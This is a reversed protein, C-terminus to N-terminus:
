RELPMTTRGKYNTSLWGALRSEYADAACVGICQGLRKTPDVLPGGGRDRAGDAPAVNGLAGRVAGNILDLRDAPLEDSCYDRRLAGLWQGVPVGHLCDVQGPFAPCLRRYAAIQLRM